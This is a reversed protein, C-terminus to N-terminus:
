EILGISKFDNLTELIDEKLTPKKVQPYLTKMFNVIEEKNKGEELLELIISSTRNLTYLFADSGLEKILPIITTESGLKRIVYNESLKMEEKYMM